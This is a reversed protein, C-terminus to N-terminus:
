EEQGDKNDDKYRNGKDSGRKDYYSDMRREQKDRREEGEEESRREKEEQVEKM